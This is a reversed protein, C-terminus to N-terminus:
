KFKMVESEVKGDKVHILVFSKRAAPNVLIAQTGDIESITSNVVGSTIYIHPTRFPRFMSIFESQITPDICPCINAQYIIENLVTNIRSIEKGDVVNKGQFNAACAKFTNFSTMFLDLDGYEIFVPDGTISYNLGGDAIAPCPLTPVSMADEPSSVFVVNKLPKSLIEIVEKTLDEATRVCEKSLILKSDQPIFPGLFIALDPKNEVIGEVFEQVEELGNTFYPGAAVSINFNFLTSIERPKTTRTDSFIQKAIFTENQFRGIAAIIQGRYYFMKQDDEVDFDLYNRSFKPTLQIQSKRKILKETANENDLKAYIRGYIIIDGTNSVELDYTYEGEIKNNQKLLQGMQDVYDCLAKQMAQINSSFFRPTQTERILLRASM